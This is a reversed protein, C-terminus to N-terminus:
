QINILSQIFENSQHHNEFDKLEKDTFTKRKNLYYTGLIRDHINFKFSPCAPIGENWSKPCRGGCLPLIVCNNCWYKENKLEENWNTLKNKSQYEKEYLNGIKYDSNLYSEVYPTETCNWVNGDADYVDSNSNVILCVEKNRTPIINQWFGRKFMESLWLLEKVAFNKKDPSNLHAENGWSYISVPYLYSIKDQFGEQSLLDILRIFSDVNNNDINCRLTLKCNMDSYNELLFIAKLNNLIYKFSGEGSKIYRHKDHAEEDGDLTIEISNVKHEEVLEKFIAPKLSVGNTTMSASYEINKENCLNQLKKSLNRLRNLAMLPEGGFWGIKLSTFNGTSLKSNIRDAIEDILTDSLENKNHSQGCYYCGLQCSRSPMVVEYLENQNSIQEVNESLITNLEDEDYEVLAKMKVFKEVLEIPFDDLCNNKLEHLLENSVKLQLGSRSNFIICDSEQNINEIYINYKSVKLKNEM